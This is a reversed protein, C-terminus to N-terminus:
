KSIIANTGQTILFNPLSLGTRPHSHDGEYTVIMMNADELCREVHKRAPCGRMSSCKYYSRPHPSGKIPKQGYKRWSFDDPPIDALKSSVAPVKVTRKIRQKRRKSCHCGGTSVTCRASGEEGAHKRKWPYLSSGGVSTQASSSSSYCYYSLLPKGIGVGGSGDVSLSPVFLPPRAPVAVGSDPRPAANKERPHLPLRGGSAAGGKPPGGGDMLQAPDVGKAAPLPGRRIRRRRSPLAAELLSAFSRFGAVAERAAVGLELAGSCARQGSVCQLLRHASRLGGQAAERVRSDWDGAMPFTKPNM